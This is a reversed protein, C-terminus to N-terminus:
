RKTEGDSFLPKSGMAQSLIKPATPAKWLLIVAAIAFIPQILQLTILNPGAIAYGMGFVVFSAHWMIALLSLGLINSTVNIFFNKLFGERGPFAGILILVPSFAVYFAVKLMTIVVTIIYRITAVVYPIMLALWFILGAVGGIVQLYHYSMRVFLSNYSSSQAQRIDTALIELLDIGFNTIPKALEFILSFIPYSFTILLIVVLLRPIAQLLTVQTQPGIQMRFMIAFGFAVTPFIILYYAWNRTTQWLNFFADQFVFTKAVSIPIGHVTKAVGSQVSQANAYQQGVLPIDELAKSAYLTTSLMSDQEVYTVQMMTNSFGLLGGGKHSLELSEGSEDYIPINIIATSIKCDETDQGLEYAEACASAAGGIMASPLFGDLNSTVNLVNWGLNHNRVVGYIDGIKPIGWIAVDLVGFASVQSSKPKISALYNDGNIVRQSLYTHDLTYQTTHKKYDFFGTTTFVVGIAFFILYLTFFVISFNTIIRKNLM